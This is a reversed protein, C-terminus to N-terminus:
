DVEWSVTRIFIQWCRGALGPNKPLGYRGSIYAEGLGYIYDTDAPTEQYLIKETLARIRDSHEQKKYRGKELINYFLNKVYDCTDKDKRDVACEMWHLARLVDKRLGHGGNFYLRGLEGMMAANPPRQQQLFEEALEAATHYDRSLGKMGECYMRFVDEQASLSGQRAAM